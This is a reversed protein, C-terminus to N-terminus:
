LRTSRVRVCNWASAGAKMARTPLLRPTAMWGQYTRSVDEKKTDSNDMVFTDIDCCVYGQHATIPAETRELLRLSLEDTLERLEAGRADLRQRMWASSPIKTLGLPKRSSAIRM